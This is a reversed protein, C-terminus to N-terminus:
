DIALGPKSDPGLANRIAAVLESADFPKALFRFREDRGEPPAADYGSMIVVRMSRRNGLLRTALDRGNGGPMVLDTLLVHITEDLGDALAVAQAPSAAVLVRFGAHELTNVALSRVGPDDEVVLVSAGEKREPAAPAPRTLPEPAVDIRPILVSVRTGNGPVSEAWIQGNAQRVIGYVTALGLGTGVTSGKTTFFPEFARALTAEDMGAGSDTVTLHVARGSIDRDFVSAEDVLRVEVELVGGAPMADRSNVALNVLVQELQSPDARVVAPADALRTVLEIHEGILRRLMQGVASVVANVDVPRPTIAQRRAFALIQKTLEAARAGARRIEVASEVRPDGELESTLIDAYGNVATLLNNFDHAIGGALHGMAELRTAEALQAELRLRHTVDTAVVLRAAQGALVIDNASVEIWFQSGDKRVQRWQGAVFFGKGLPATQVIHEVMATVDEPPQLDTITMTLFEDRSYGYTAIAADNVALFRLSEVDYVAM